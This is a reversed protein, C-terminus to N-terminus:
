RRKKSKNRFMHGLDNIFFNPDLYTIWGIGALIVCVIFLEM